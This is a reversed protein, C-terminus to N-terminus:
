RRKDPSPSAAMIGSNKGKLNCCLRLGVGQWVGWDIGQRLQAGTKVMPIIVGRAGADLAQKIDKLPSV